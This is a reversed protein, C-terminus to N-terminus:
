NIIKREQRRSADIDRPETNSGHRVDSLFSDKAQDVIAGIKESAEDKRVEKKANYGTNENIEGSVKTVHGLCCM